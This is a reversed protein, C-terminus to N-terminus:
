RESCVYELASSLRQFPEFINSNEAFDRLSELVEESLSGNGTLRFAIGGSSVVYEGDEVKVIGDQSSSTKSLYFVNEGAEVLDIDDTLVVGPKSELKSLLAKAILEVSLYRHLAKGYIIKQLETPVVPETYKFEVPIAREDVVLVGGVFKGGINKVSLYGIM